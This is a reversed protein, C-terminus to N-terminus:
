SQPHVKQTGKPWHPKFHVEHIKANRVVNAYHIIFYDQTGTEFFKQQVPLWSSEDLWLHIKAVQDRIKDSKPTLELLVVKKDDLTEEGLLTVLYGKELERGPTGFGLLLFQDVLARNKGVDFEEVRNLGPNYLYFEDGNRLITRPAPLTLDIRMKDGRVYIQGSESSIDNVVVTVKTREVDATLSHFGKAEKDMRELVGELTWAGRSQAAFATGLAAVLALAAVFWKRILIFGGQAM